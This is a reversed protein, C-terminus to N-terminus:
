RGETVCGMGNEVVRGEVREKRWCSRAERTRAVCVDEGAKASGAESEVRM